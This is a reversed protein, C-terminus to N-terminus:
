DYEENKEQARTFFLHFLLGSAKGSPALRANAFPFAPM